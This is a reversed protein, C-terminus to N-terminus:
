ALLISKEISNVANLTIVAHLVFGNSYGHGLRRANIM